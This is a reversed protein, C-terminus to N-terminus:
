LRDSHIPFILPMLFWGRWARSENQRDCLSTMQDFRMAYRRDGSRSPRVCETHWQAVGQHAGGRFRRVRSVFFCEVYDNYRVVISEVEAGVQSALWERHNPSPKDALQSVGCEGQSLLVDRALPTLRIETGM